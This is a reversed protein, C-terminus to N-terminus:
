GPIIRFGYQINDGFASFVLAINDLSVGFRPSYISKDVQLNGGGILDILFDGGPYAVTVRSETREEIWCDPHLHIRSLTRVPRSSVIRDSVEIVGGPIRRFIRHHIPSGPLRRYGDHWGQLFFREGTIECEVDRPRGRRGVRFISWFEAQDEGEIEVTNHARTSRDYDRQCGLQYGFVGSDVVVRHGRLSLEFSFIDGHSHGPIYDPGIPGADCILCNGERDRFGFYGAMPLEWGGCGEGPPESRVGLRGAAERLAAPGPYIDFASDNFLAIEGDPHTIRDLAQFMRELIGEPPRAEDGGGGAALLLMLWTARLHYMPSLEFHLGDDLIQEKIERKLIKLGRRRWNQAERGEFLNGVMVLAVANELLHNGLLRFELRRNLWRAQAGITEEIEERFEADVQLQRFYKAFFIRLWNILRLSVPYPEWAVARNSPPCCGIWDRVVARCAPYDLSDLWQFYHLNYIWLRPLDELDWCPPWGLWRSQNLFAFEGRLLQEPSQVVPSSPLALVERPLTRGSGSLGSVARRSQPLPLRLRYRIQGVIQRFRLFRITHILRSFKM